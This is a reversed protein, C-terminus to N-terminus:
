SPPPAVTRPSNFHLGRNGYDTSINSEDTNELPPPLREEMRKVQLILKDIDSKLSAEKAKLLRESAGKAMSMLLEAQAEVTRAM